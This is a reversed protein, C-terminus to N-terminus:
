LGLTRSAVSIAIAVGLGIFSTGGRDRLHGLLEDLSLDKIRAKKIVRTAKRFYIRNALFGFPVRVALVWVGIFTWTFAQGEVDMDPLLIMSVVGFVFAIVSTGVLLLLGTGYMKRYFCWTMGFLAAAWNFRRGGNTASLLPQLVKMYYEDQVFAEYASVQHDIEAAKDITVGDGSIEMLAGGHRVGEYLARPRGSMHDGLALKPAPREPIFYAVFCLYQEPSAGAGSLEPVDSWCQADAVFDTSQLLASFASSVEASSRAVYASWPEDVLRDTADANLWYMECTADPIRFQFQGGLCALGLAEASALVHPFASPAWAYENGRLSAGETLESPLEM